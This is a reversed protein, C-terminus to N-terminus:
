TEREGFLKSIGPATLISDNLGSGFMENQGRLSYNWAM